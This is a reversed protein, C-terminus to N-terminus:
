EGGSESGGTAKDESRECDPRPITCVEFPTIFLVKSSRMVGCESRAHCRTRTAEAIALVPSSHHFAKLVAALPM